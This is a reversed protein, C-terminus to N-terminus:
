CVTPQPSAILYCSTVLSVVWGPTENSFRGVGANVNTEM